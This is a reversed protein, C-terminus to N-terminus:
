KPPTAETIRTPEYEVGHLKYWAALPAVETKLRDSPNVFTVRRPASLAALSVIDFHELLGFCFYEPVQNVGLNDELVQKLSALSDHLEVTEIVDPEVASAVLTALSTRPGIAVIKSPRNLYERKAWRAIAAIQTAQVGIPRDGVCAVQLAHLFDREAIKSEGLYFPDLAIVVYGRELWEDVLEVPISKRGQDAIVLVQGIPNRRTLEVAPVTWAGGVRLWFYTVTGDAFVKLGTEPVAQVAETKFRTIERLREFKQTRWAAAREKDAPLAGDRPLTAALRMALSHFDENIGPLAVQLQEPTKVEDDCAIEKFDFQQGAFFHDKLMSYFAERNNKEFNHDGPEHNVHTSGM